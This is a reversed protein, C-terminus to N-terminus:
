PGPSSKRHASDAFEDEPVDLPIPLMRVRGQHFIEKALAELKPSRQPPENYWADVLVDNVYLSTFKDGIRLTTESM